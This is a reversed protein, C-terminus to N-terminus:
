PNRLSNGLVFEARRNKQHDEESCDASFCPVVPLSEGYSKLIIRDKKIGEAVLYKGVAEARRTSLRINYNESGRDDAHGAILLTLASNHELVTKVYQLYELDEDGLNAKDFEFYINRLKILDSQGLGELVASPNTRLDTLEGKGLYVNGRPTERYLISDRATIESLSEGTKIYIKSTSEDTDVVLLDSKGAKIDVVIAAAANVPFIKENGDPKDELIVVFKKIDTGANPLIVEQLATKYDEHAVNINYADGHQGKFTMVGKETEVPINEGTTKNTVTAKYGDVPVGSKNTVLGIALVNHLDEYAPVPHIMFAKETGPDATGSNMGTLNDKTGILVFATGRLLSFDALGEADTTHEQDTESFTIVKLSANGLPQNNDGRFVRAAMIMTNPTDPLVMIWTKTSDNLGIVLRHKAASGQENQIEIKYTHGKEGMFTILSKDGPHDLTEGTLEDKISIISAKRPLGEENQILGICAVRSTDNFVPIIHTAPKDAIGPVMGIKDGKAAIIAFATEEPLEFNINGMDDAILTTDIGSSTIIRINTSDLQEKTLGDIVHALMNVPVSVKEFSFMDDNGKRASAFYGKRQSYDTILSFDDTTTNIPYGLNVPPTFGNVTQTSVFIDLGGLGAHGTSAFYLTNDIFFPFVESEPTNIAPGLNFPTGWVGESREVRYIDTGGYGGPKDSSFYLTNGDESISPHAFTYASENFPLPQVSWTSKQQDFQADYLGPRWEYVDERGEAKVTQNRNVIMRRYNDYFIAPGDHFRSSLEGEFLVPTSFINESITDSYYLNLFHSNDWHYKKRFPSELRASTFVIGGKYYVPAFEAEPSNISLSDVICSASDQYYKQFNRLDELVHRARNANPDSEVIQSLLADAENRKKLKILLQAFLYSDENSFSANNSKANRFWTEADEEFHFKYYSKAIQLMLYGKDNSKKLAKEYYDAAYQYHHHKYLSDALTRYALSSSQSFTQVGNLLLLLIFLLRNM